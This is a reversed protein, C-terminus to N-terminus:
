LLAWFQPFPCSPFALTLWTEFDLGFCRKKLVSLSLLGCDCAQDATESLGLFDHDQICNWESLCGYIMPNHLSVCFSTIKVICNNYIVISHVLL